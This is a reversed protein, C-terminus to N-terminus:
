PRQCSVSVAGTLPFPGLLRGRWKRGSIDWGWPGWPATDWGSCSGELSGRLARGAVRHFAEGGACGARGQAQTRVECCCRGLGGCFGSTGKKGAGRRQSTLKRRQHVGVAVGTRPCQGAETFVRQVHARFRSGVSFASFLQFLSSYTNVM